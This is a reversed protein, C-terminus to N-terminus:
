QFSARRLSLQRDVGPPRFGVGVLESNKLRRGM